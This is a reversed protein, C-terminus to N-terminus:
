PNCLPCAGPDAFAGGDARGRREAHACAACTWVEAAVLATASGCCRCPLGREVGTRGFGPAGCRPCLSALRDALLSALRSLTAMRRPNMHARMDTELAAGPSAAELARGLAGPDCIGKLIAGGGQAAPLLILGQAPFGVRRLFAEVGGRDGIELRAYTPAEDTVTEQVEAGTAADVLVAIERGLPLFPLQPHPGYAGESALGLDRGTAAMGLLAKARVAEEMTGARPIEGTFTGLSDTDVGGAVELTLGLRAALPPRFAAEKGHMTAFAATRGAFPGQRM